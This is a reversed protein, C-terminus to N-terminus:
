IFEIPIDIFDDIKNIREQLINREKNFEDITKKIYNQDPNFMKVFDKFSLIHMDISLFNLAKNKRQNIFIDIKNKQIKWFNKDPDSSVDYKCLYESYKKFNEVDSDSIKIFEGLSPTYNQIDSYINVTPICISPMYKTYKKIIDIVFDEAEERSISM